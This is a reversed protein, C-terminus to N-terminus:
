IPVAEEYCSANITSSVGHGAVECTFSATTNSSYIAAYEAINPTVSSSYAGALANAPNNVCVSGSAGFSYSPSTGATGAICSDVSSSGIAYLKTKVLWSNTPGNSSGLTISPSAVTTYSAPVTTSVPAPATYKAYSTKAAITYPYSGTITIAAGAIPSPTPAPTATVAAITYPYVGSVTVNAGAIPSPTPAPTPTIAAFTCNPLQTGTITINAGPTPCATAGGSTAGITYPYTGTILINTGAIPSATPAPTPTVAAITCNPMLSGTITINPGPTPCTTQGRTAAISCNPMLSGTITVYAGATPCATVGTRYSVGSSCFLQVIATGTNAGGATVLVNPLSAPTAFYYGNATITASTSGDAAYSRVLVTGGDPDTPAITGTWAGSVALNLTSCSAPVAFTGSNGAALYLTLGANQAPARTAVGAVIAIAAFVAYLFSLTRKM